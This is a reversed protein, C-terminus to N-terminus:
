VLPVSTENVSVLREAVGRLRSLDTIRKGANLWQDNEKIFFRRKRQTEIRPVLYFDKFSSNDPACRCILTPYDREFRNVTVGWRVTGNGLDFYQCTLVSIKLGDRFCLVRRCGARERVLTAEAGFTESLRRLLADTLRRHRHRMRRAGENNAFMQYGILAYAQRITGFRRLYTGHSPINAALNILRESLRGERQLLWRLGDLMDDKSMYRTRDKLVSQAEDFTQQDIISEYASSNVTWKSAPQAKVRQGLPSSTRGLVAWGIYKQNQLIELIRQNNWRAGACKIGKRNFDRAIAKASKKESITLRYIEKVRAVEWAPGPVLIVHGNRFGKEEGQLLVRQPVGDDSILMRRLGYGAQGGARYGRQTMIRKARSLRESLERSYEAAMIRKLTKMIASPPSSNNKFTEACYYVPTGARRCVFEYHAAEDTDQFREWRSVDYVLIAKFRKGGNIVDHLLQALGPRHKLTLGSRGPDEYSTVIQFGHRDAYRQIAATQCPLSLKQHDTSMRLYQAAPIPSFDPM